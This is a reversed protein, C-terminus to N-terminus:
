PAPPRFEVKGTTGPWPMLTVSKTNVLRIYEYVGPKLFITGGRSSALLATALEKFPNNQSGDGCLPCTSPDVYMGPKLFDMARLLAAAIQMQGLDNPHM